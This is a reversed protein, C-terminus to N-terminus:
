ARAVDRASVPLDDIPAAYVAQITRPVEIAAPPVRLRWGGDAPVLLEVAVWSRLVEEVFLPNGDSRHAIQGAVDDPLGEGALAALLARADGHTLQALHLVGGGREEDAASWAPERGLLAPRTPML